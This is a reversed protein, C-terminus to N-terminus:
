LTAVLLLHIHNKKSFTSTKMNVSDELVLLKTVIITIVYVCDCAHTENYNSHFVRRHRALVVAFFHCKKTIQAKSQKKSFHSLKQRASLGAAPSNVTTRSFFMVMQAAFLPLISWLIHWDSIM